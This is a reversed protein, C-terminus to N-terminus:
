RRMFTGKRVRYIDRDFYSLHGKEKLLQGKDKATVTGKGNEYPGKKMEPLHGKETGRVM